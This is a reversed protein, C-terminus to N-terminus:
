RFLWDMWGREDKVNLGKDKSQVLDDEYEVMPNKWDDNLEPFLGGNNTNSDGDDSSSGTASEGDWFKPAAKADHNTSSYTNVDRVWGNGDMAKLYKYRRGSDLIVIDGNSDIYDVAILHGTGGMTVSLTMFNGKEYQEKIYDHSSTANEFWANEIHKVKGGTASTIGPWNYAPTGGYNSGIGHEQSFKYGDMADKGSSWFGTKLLLFAITHVGCACPGFTGESCYEFYEGNYPPAGQLWTIPNNKDFDGSYAEGYDVAQVVSPVTVNFIFLLSLLIVFLKKNVMM